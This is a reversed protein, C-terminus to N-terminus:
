QSRKRKQRPKKPLAVVPHEVKIGKLNNWLDGLGEEMAQALETCNESTTAPSLFEHSNCYEVVHIFEHTLVALLRAGNDPEFLRAAVDVHMLGRRWMTNGDYLKTLAPDGNKYIKVPVGGCRSTGILDRPSHHLCLLDEPQNRKRM